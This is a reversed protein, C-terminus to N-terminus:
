KLNLCDSVWAFACLASSNEPEWPRAMQLKFKDRRTHWLLAFLGTYQAITREWYAVFFPAIIERYLSPCSKFFGELNQAIWIQLYLSQVPPAKAMAGICLVFGRVYEHARTAHSGDNWLVQWDTKDVLAKTTEAVFHEPQLDTPIVSEIMALSAATAATSGRRFQLFALRIAIPIMPIVSLGSRPAHPESVVFAEVRSTEATANIGTSAKATAIIKDVDMAIMVNALQAARIFDDSLLAAPMARWGAFRVVNWEAPTQKALEIAKWTWAAARSVDKLGDAFMALRISIYSVQEPRYGTHAQDNSSLFLGQKPEVHGEQPEGNQAVGSFYAIVAFLRAFQGKWSDANSQIAFIRETAQEFVEFSTHGEGANWLAIGHEALTEIFLPEVLKADRSRSVADATFQEARHPDDSAYLEALTILANRRLVSLRYANCTVARKLWTTAEQQRGAYFLQRGTVELILFCCDDYGFRDLISKSLVLAADLENEWEALIMVRTRVAAAELLPFDVIRATVEIEKLKNKVSIWDRELEPNRYMRMWIGDCLITINDEMFESNKLTRIQEPTYRSITALWSDVDADSKCNNASLWVIQELQYGSLSPLKSGDPLRADAFTDLALLLYKNALVPHGWVLHIALGSAAIAVGWGTGGVDAILADLTELTPAVDRGQKALVIAQVARLNIQLNVDVDVLPQSSPWMRSFGFDDEIPENLELYAALTQIVVMVAFTVHQAMLLHNVCAFAEIPELIKRAIIRLALVYHVDKRTEPDLSNALASTILPSRLYKGNGIQQLWVGTSRQVKEGPLPIANPVRAVSAIDEMTFPGVELSMRLLLEREESDPVTIQLLSNADLRHASAFEGGCLAEIEATTFSWNANVLYRIAAMVLTPLGESVTILLQCIGKTRLERPAHAAALLEAADSVTFRPVDCHVKGLVQESTAPLPFYSSIFLYADVDRLSRALREIRTALPGGALVRPLNM